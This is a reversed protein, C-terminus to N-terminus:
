ATCREPTRNMESIVYVPVYLLMVHGHVNCFFVLLMGALVRCCRRVVCVCFVCSLCGVVASPRGFMGFSVFFRDSCILGDLHLCVGSFFLCLLVWPLSRYSARLLSLDISGIALAGASVSLLM